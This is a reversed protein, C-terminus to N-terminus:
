PCWSGASVFGYNADKPTRTEDLWWEPGFGLLRDLVEDHKYTRNPTSWGGDRTPVMRLECLTDKLVQSCLLSSSHKALVTLLERYKGVPPANEFFGPLQTTVYTELSQRDVRLTDRLFEQTVADYYEKALLSVVGIPDEFDGPLLASQAAVFGGGARYIPLTALASLTDPGAERDRGVM